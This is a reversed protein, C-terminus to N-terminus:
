RNTHVDAFLTRLWKAIDSTACVISVGGFRFHLCHNRHNQFIVCKHQRNRQGNFIVCNYPYTRCVNDNGILLSIKLKKRHDFRM